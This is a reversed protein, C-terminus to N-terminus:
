FKTKFFFFPDLFFNRHAGRRHTPLRHSGIKPLIEFNSLFFIEPLLPNFSKIQSNFYIILNYINFNLIKLMQIDNFYISEM